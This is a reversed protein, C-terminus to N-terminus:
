IEGFAKKFRLRYAIALSSELEVNNDLAKKFYEDVSDWPVFPIECTMNKTQIRAAKGQLTVKYKINSYELILEKNDELLKRNKLADKSPGFSDKLLGVLNEGLNKDKM